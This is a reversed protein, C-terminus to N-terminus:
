PTLADDMKAFASVQMVGVSVFTEVMVRVLSETGKSYPDITLEPAGYVPILLNSWDASYM